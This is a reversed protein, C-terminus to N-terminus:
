RDSKRRKLIEVIGDYDSPRWVHVEADAARLADIWEQQSQSVKGTEKKLEAYVIRERVMVLDPFGGVSHMSNWTHYVKWGLAKALSEVQAQFVKESIPPTYKM